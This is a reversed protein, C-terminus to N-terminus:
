GRGRALLAAIDTRGAALSPVIGAALGIFLGVCLITLDSIQLALLTPPLVLGNLSRIGAAVAYALGHGAIIGCLTGIASLILGEAMVTTFLMLPAAGRMIRDFQAKIDVDYPPELPAIRSM